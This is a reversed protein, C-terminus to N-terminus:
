PTGQLFPCVGFDFLGCFPFLISRGIASGVVFGCLNCGASMAVDVEAQVASRMVVGRGVDALIDLNKVLAIMVVAILVAPYIYHGVDVDSGNTKSASM